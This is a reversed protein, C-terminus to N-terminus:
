TLSFFARRRLVVSARTENLSAVWCAFLDSRASARVVSGSASRHGADIRSPSVAISRVAATM